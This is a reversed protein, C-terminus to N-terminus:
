YTMSWIFDITRVQDGSVYQTLGIGFAGASASNQLIAAKVFAGSNIDIDEEYCNSCNPISRSSQVVAGVGAQTYAMTNQHEGFHWKPGFAFSLLAGTASSDSSEVNGFYDETVQSFSADDSYILISLNFSTLWRETAYNASGGISWASDEIYNQRAADSDLAEIGVQLGFKWSGTAGQEQAVLKCSFALFLILTFLWPINDLKM